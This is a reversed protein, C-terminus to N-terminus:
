RHVQFTANFGSTTETYAVNAEYYITLYGSSGVVVRPAPFSSGCFAGLLKYDVSRERSYQQQMYNPIGDYVYVFAGKNCKTRIDTISFSISANASQIFSFLIGHLNLHSFFRCFSGNLLVGVFYLKVADVGVESPADVISDYVTLIWLCYTPENGSAGGASIDVAGTDLLAGSGAGSRGSGLAGLTINTLRLRGNCEHYCLGGQRPDGYFGEQCEDCHLGLHPPSLYPVCPSHCFKRLQFFLLWRQFVYLGVKQITRATATVRRKIASTLATWRIITASVRVVAPSPIPLTASLVWPACRATIARPTTKALTVNALARYAYIRNALIRSSKSHRWVGYSNTNWPYVLVSFM